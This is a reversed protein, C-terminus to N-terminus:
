PQTRLAEWDNLGDANSDIDFVVVRWSLKQETPPMGAPRALATLETDAGAWEGPLPTWTNLNASSEVRYYKGSIGLWRVVLNHDADYATTAVFRSAPDTPDTGAQAEARNSQGDGDPDDTPAGAAPYLAAWVDSIGDGNADLMPQATASHVIVTFQATSSNGDTDQVQVRVSATGTQAAAPTLTVTRAAGSGALVIQAPALLNPADCSALLTLAAVPTEADGITFPIAASSSNLLITQNPIATISPASGLATAQAVTLTRTLGGGQLTVVATRAAGTNATATLTLSASGNGSGPAVTLWAPAPNVLTWGVNSNLAATISGASKPLAVSPAALALTNEGHLLRFENISVWGGTYNACGTVTLRVYRVQVPPFESSLRGEHTNARQDVVASYADGPNQKAEVLFQYARNQYAHLELSDITTAAGLDVEIWQPYNQAAWRTTLDGDVAHAAENGTQQASFTLSRGEALNSPASPLSGTAMSLVEGGALLFAGVAYDKTDEYTAAGPKLGIPQCYGLKGEPHVAIANLGNWAKTVVPAYTARDLLGHNIGWALGYTFFCTGSTEPGAFNAPDRLSSNWFGDTRQLAKLAAAMAHFTAAYESRHPDGPPLLELVRAHAAFVWGNGRSWYCPQGNPEKYPPLFTEDRYWLSDTSNYLRRRVKTDSYFEYMAQAYAPDGTQQGLQAFVPMAMYLADVWWWDDRRSSTVMAHIDATIPGIRAPQPDLAYLELYALGCAQDDAVRTTDSGAPRWAFKEAWGSSYRNYIPDAFVSFLRNNGPYYVARDWANTGFDANNGIWYDNVRRLQELISPKDPLASSLRRALQSQYLNGPVLSAPAIAEFWTGTLNKVSADTTNLGVLNLSWPGWGAPPAHLAATSRINWFSEWGGSQRGLDAGGGCTWLRSGQGANLDCFLNAFNATKHHDLCLNQGQGDSYVNGAAREVSLDHVFSVRLDFRTLLNDDSRKTQICHHGSLPGRGAYTTFCADRVTCFRSGVLNIGIDANRVEVNRVWCDSVTDLEIGNYGKENFHGPYPVEPFELRLEEIGCETVSPSFSRVRPTWETKIDTRLPRDLRIRNASVELVQAVLETNVGSLNTITGPDGCYLNNILTKGSTDAQYIEVRDGPHLAAASALTLWTDGRAAAASISALNAQRFGGKITLFGYGFSYESTPTGSSNSGPRPFVGTLSRPFWLTTRGPGAGRLVINSKQINVFDTIKYRGAPIYIAGSATADIAAQFAHTDDATGDGVAGFDKVNATQAVEPLAAEGQHYGAHSFDPLRSTNSWKEGCLGWLDSPSQAPAIAPLALLAVSAAAFILRPNLARPSTRSRPHPM